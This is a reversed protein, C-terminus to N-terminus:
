GAHQLTGERGPEDRRAEWDFGCLQRRAALPQVFDLMVTKPHDGPLVAGLHPEVAPGAIVQCITKRQDHLGKARSRERDQTMSPSAIAHSTPHRAEIVDSIPAMIAAHEQVGEVEDLQVAVIEAAVREFDGLGRQGGNQRPNAMANPEIVVDLAIALGYEAM